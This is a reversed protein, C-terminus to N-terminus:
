GQRQQFYLDLAKLARFHGADQGPSSSDRLLKFFEESSMDPDLSKLLGAFGAIMPASMSTGSLTKYSNDPYTSVIAEGPAYIGMDINKLYNSFKSKKGESNISGVAIVGPISAPVYNYADASSNGAAAIVICNKNRAYQIAEEYLREKNSTKIGGLSLSIVDAGKDAAEIIGAVIDAQTGFGMANIVRISSIKISSNTPLLSAIGKGNATVGAAIGACHTGHGRPDTDYNKNISQYNHELDEHDAEIGSDLIAIHVPHQMSELANDALFQFYDEAGAYQLSWQQASLPDNTITKLSSLDAEQGPMELELIENFEFYRVRPDKTIDEVFEHINRNDPIDVALFEDLLSETTYPNFLPYIISYSSEYDKIWNQLDAKNDFQIFLESEEGLQLVTQSKNLEFNKIYSHHILLLAIIALPLFSIKFRKKNILSSILAIGSILFIDVAYHLLANSEGLTFSGIFDYIFIGLGLITLWSSRLYQAIIFVVLSLTIFELHGFVSLDSFPWQM